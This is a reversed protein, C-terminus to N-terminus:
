CYKIWSRFTGWVKLLYIGGTILTDGVGAPNPNTFDLVFSSSLNNILDHDVDMFTYGTEIGGIDPSNGAYETVISSAINPEGFNYTM